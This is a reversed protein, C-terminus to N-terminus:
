RKPIIIKELYRGLGLFRLLNAIDESVVIHKEILHEEILPPQTESSFTSFPGRLNFISLPLNIKFKAVQLDYQQRVDFYREKM